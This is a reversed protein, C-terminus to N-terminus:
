FLCPKRRLIHMSHCQKNQVKCRELDNSHCTPLLDLEVEQESAPCWLFHEPLLHLLTSVVQWYLCWPPGVVTTPCPHYTPPPLLVLCPASSPLTIISGRMCYCGACTVQVQYWGKWNWGSCERQKRPTTGALSCDCGLSDWLLGHCPTPTNSYTSSQGEEREWRRMAGGGLLISNPM